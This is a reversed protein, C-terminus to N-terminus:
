GCTNQCRGNKGEENPNQSEAPITFYFTSGQGLESEVWIKCGHLEVLKKALALGLGSGGHTRTNSGNVQRFMEFIIKQDEKRIGPGTDSVSVLVKGKEKSREAKVKIKGHKPTFKNANNLLNTLVQEIKKQDAVLMPLNEEVEVKIEQEKKILLPTIKKVVDDILAQVPFVSVELEMRGAQLKAMDLIDNILSLLQYGNRQIDYHYEKQQETLEGAIGELLLENFALISTLPTKLEHSISSLFESKLENTKQLQINAEKLREKQKNLIENAKILDRTRAAVKEELEQYYKKLKLAMAKFEKFLLNIETSSNIQPFPYELNGKGIETAAITLERLPKVVLNHMALFVSGLTLVLLITTLFLHSLIETLLEEQFAEMPINLSIAGALDGLSHKQLQSVGLEAYKENHCSLCSEEMYIPVLYTFVRTGEVERTGWAEKLNKNEQLQEILKSEFNDPMNCVSNATLWIEKFSVKIEGFTEKINKEVALPDLHKYGLVSYNQKEASKEAIFSRIALFQTSIVRAKERFQQEERAKTREMNWFFDISMVILTIISIIIMLRAGLSNKFSVM